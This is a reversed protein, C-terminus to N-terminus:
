NQKDDKLYEKVKKKIILGVIVGVYISLGVILLGGIFQFSLINM